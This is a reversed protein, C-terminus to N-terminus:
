GRDAIVSDPRRRPRGPRGAVAPVADALPILQTVDNRNGGTVSFALPIGTADVLLHHKSGNRARDVPSPGTASGGKESARPQLRRGGAVVGVRWSGAAACAAGRATAGVSGGAAVRGLAALVHCWLWFRARGTVADVRDRHAARVLDGAAGASGAAAESGPLPFAARSEAAVARGAGVVRGLRDVACRGDAGRGGQRRIGVAKTTLSRTGENLFPKKVAQLRARRVECGRRSQAPLRGPLHERRARPFRRRLSRSKCSRLPRWCNSRLCASRRSRRSRSWSRAAARAAARTHSWLKLLKAATTRAPTVSPEHHISGIARM